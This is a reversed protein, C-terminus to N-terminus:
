WHLCVDSSVLTDDANGGADAEDSVGDRRLLLWSVAPAQVERTSAISSYRKVLRCGATLVRAVATCGSRQLVNREDASRKRGRWALGSPAASAASRNDYQSWVIYSWTRYVCQCIGPTDWLCWGYTRCAAVRVPRRNAELLLYMVGRSRVLNPSRVKECAPGAAHFNSGGSLWGQWAWSVVSFASKWCLM